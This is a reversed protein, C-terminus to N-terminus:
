VFPAAEPTPPAPAALNSVAGVVGIALAGPGDPLGGDLIYHPLIVGDGVVKCVLLVFLDPGERM